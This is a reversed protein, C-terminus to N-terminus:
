TRVIRTDSGLLNELTILLVKLKLLPLKTKAALSPLPAANTAGEAAAPQSGM